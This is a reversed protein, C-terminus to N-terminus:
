GGVLDKKNNKQAALIEETSVSPQSRQLGLVLLGATHTHIDM